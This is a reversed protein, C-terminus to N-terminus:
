PYRRIQQLLLDFIAPALKECEHAQGQRNCTSISPDVSEQYARAERELAAYVFAVDIPSVHLRKNKDEFHQSLIKGAAAMCHCASSGAQQAVDGVAEFPILGYEHAGKALAEAGSIRDRAVLQHIFM